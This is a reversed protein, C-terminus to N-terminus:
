RGSHDHKNSRDAARMAALNILAKCCLPRRNQLSGKRFSLAWEALTQPETRPRWLGSAGGFGLSLQDTIAYSITLDLQAGRGHGKEPSVLARLVHNERATWRLRIESTCVEIQNACACTACSRDDRPRPILGEPASNGRGVWAPAM